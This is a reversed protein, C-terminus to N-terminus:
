VEEDIALLESLSVNLYLAVKHLTYISANVRGSELRSINSKDTNFAEVALEQQSVGKATRVEKIRLGVKTLLEKETM